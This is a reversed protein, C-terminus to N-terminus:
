RSSLLLFGVVGLFALVVQAVRSVLLGAVVALGVVSGRRLAELWGLMRPPKKTALTEVAAAGLWPGFLVGLLPGGVPLAPLLGFFGFLLGAGAGLVAWRSAQLRASALGLALVDACLGLGFVALAFVVSPWAQDWGVALWWIGAGLPLWILGPLLPLLTGPISLLQVMLALWWLGDGGPAADM